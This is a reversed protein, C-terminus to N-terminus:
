SFFYQSQKITRVNFGGKKPVPPLLKVVDIFKAAIKAEAESVDDESNAAKRKTKTRPSKKKKKATTSAVEQEGQENEQEIVDGEDSEKVEEGTENLLQMTEEDLKVGAALLKTLLTSNKLSALSVKFDQYREQFQPYL